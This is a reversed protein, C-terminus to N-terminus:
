VSPEGLLTTARVGTATTELSRPSEQHVDGCTSIARRARGSAEGKREMPGGGAIDEEEDEGGFEEVILVVTDLRRLTAAREAGAEASGYGEWMESKTLVRRGAVDSREMIEEWSDDM